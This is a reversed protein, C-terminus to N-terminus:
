QHSLKRAVDLISAFIRMKAPAFIVRKLMECCLKREFKQHFATFGAQTVEKKEVLWPELNTRHVLLMMM